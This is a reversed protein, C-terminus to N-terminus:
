TSLRLGTLNADRDARRLRRPGQRVARLVGDASHRCAGSGHASLLMDIAKVIHEIAWGIDARIRTRALFELKAGTNAATDLDDTVRHAHFHATDIMMTAQALQLQFAVSDAQRTYITNAVGKTASKDQVYKLAARGMGLQPGVM